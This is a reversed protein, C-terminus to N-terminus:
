YHVNHAQPENRDRIPCTLTFYAQTVETMQPLSLIKGPEESFPHGLLVDTSVQFLM